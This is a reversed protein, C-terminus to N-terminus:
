RVLDLVTQILDDVTSIIRAAGQFARQQSILNISEEDLSVGSLSERQSTLTQLVVTASQSTTKAAAAASSVSSTLTDYSQRLTLGALSSLSKTDLSAIALAASNDGLNGNAAAAIGQPNNALRQAVQINAANTGSFFTNIGLSALVNSTDKSFSFTVDPNASKISLQGGAVSATLNTDGIQAALSALTTPNPSSPSLDVKILRSTTLGTSKSTVSVVFSGNQPPFALNTAASTLPANPDAVSNTSAVSTLPSLPQGAAHIKNLEFILAKALTDLRDSADDATGRASALGGLEGGTAPVPTKGDDKFVLQTQVGDAGSTQRVALGRTSTGIVLPESGVFINVNGKDEITTVDVLQSLRKLLADRQDRLSNAQAASGGEAVTIQGNLEAIQRTLDDAAAAQATTRGDIDSQVGAFKTSIDKFTRALTDGTSLVVQRQGLDQPNSALKSWSNLFNSLQTSLNSNGLSNLVSEIRSTWTLKADAAASDSTASRLRLLLSSDIQRNVSTLSVGSGLLLGTSDIVDPSASLVGTQRTYDPNGANSINNSTIQLAAQQVALASRGLNLTGLLSM